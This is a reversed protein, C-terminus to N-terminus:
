QPITQAICLGVRSFKVPKCQSVVYGNLPWWVSWGQSDDRTLFQLIKNSFLTVVCVAKSVVILAKPNPFLHLVSTLLTVYVTETSYQSGWENTM